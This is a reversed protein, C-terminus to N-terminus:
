SVRGQVTLHSTRSISFHIEMATNNKGSHASQTHPAASASSLAGLVQYPLM